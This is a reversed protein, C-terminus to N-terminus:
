GLGLVDKMSYLGPPRGAVWRAARLAGRAFVSRSSAKHAIEIREGDAAFIVTHDGVVDGGRLTAFGIEGAPRAGTQGDRAKRWVEDLKVGRGAAAARGLALATGSPADVKHRHHMELVDIDYAPDLTRATREVLALLLTVGISFNPAWVLAIARAAQEVTRTQAPDLGTTGLVLTKGAEVALRAHAVSAAPATFDIAVDATAFLVRPDDSAVIGIARGGALIGLDQGVAADGAREVGAVLAVGQTALTEALLMRGMRGGCGAIGIKISAQQNV